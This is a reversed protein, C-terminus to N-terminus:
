VEDKAKPGKGKGKGRKPFLQLSESLQTALASQHLTHCKLSAAMTTWIGLHCLSKPLYYEQDARVSLQLKWPSTTGKSPLAHFAMVLSESTLMELFEQVIQCVRKLSLPQRQSVQLQGKASHWELYPCSLDELLILSKKAATILDSQPDAAGLRNLRSLLENFLDQMLQQRLPIWPQPRPTQQFRNKLKEASTLLCTLSGTKDQNDFFLIFTSERRLSQLEQDHQIMLRAMLRLSPHDQDVPDVVRHKGKGKHDHDKRPRKQLGPNQSLSLTEDKITQLDPMMERFSKWIQAQASLGETM